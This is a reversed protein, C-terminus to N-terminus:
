INGDTWASHSPLRRAWMTANGRWLCIFLHQFLILTFSSRCPHYWAESGSTQRNQLNTPSSGPELRGVVGCCPSCVVGRCRQMRCQSSGDKKGRGTESCVGEWFCRRITHATAYHLYCYRGFCCPPRQVLQPSIHRSSPIQHRSDPYPGRKSPGTSCIPHSFFPRGPYRRTLPNPWQQGRMGSSSWRIPRCSGIQWM